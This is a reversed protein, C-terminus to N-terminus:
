SPALTLLPHPQVAPTAARCPANRDIETTRITVSDLTPDALGFRTKVFACLSPWGNGDNADIDRRTKELLDKLAPLAQRDFGMFQNELMYEGGHRKNKAFVMGHKQLIAKMRPTSVQPDAIDLDAYFARDIDQTSLIHDLMVLRALDVKQWILNGGDYLSGEAQRFLPGTRYDEIENLNKFRVNAPVPRLGSAPRSATEPFPPTELWIQVQVAPTEEAIRYANNLCPVPIVSLGQPSADNSDEESTIWLFALVSKSM